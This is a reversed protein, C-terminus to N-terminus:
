FHVGKGVVLGFAEPGIHASIASGVTTIDLVNKAYPQVLKELHTKMTEITYAAIISFDNELKNNKLFNNNLLQMTNIGTDISRTTAVSNVEGEDDTTLIPKLSLMKGILAKAKGIRGGRYLHELTPVFFVLFSEKVFRDIDGQALSNGNKVQEMARLIVYAQKVCATKSDLVTVNKVNM